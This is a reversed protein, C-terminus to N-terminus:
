SVTPPDWQANFLDSESWGDILYGISGGTANSMGLGNLIEM